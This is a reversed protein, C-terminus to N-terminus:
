RDDPGRRLHVACGHDRVTADERRLRYAYGGWSGLPHSGRAHWMGRLVARVVAIAAIVRDIATTRSRSRPVGDRFGRVALLIPLPTEFRMEVVAQAVM